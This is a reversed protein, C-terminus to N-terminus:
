GFNLHDTDTATLARAFCAGLRRPALPHDIADTEPLEMAHRMRRTILHQVLPQVEEVRAIMADIAVREELDDNDVLSLGEIRTEVSEDTRTHTATASDADDQLRFGRQLEAFFERTIERRGMRLARMGEYFHQQDNGSAARDARDFLDDDAASLFERLCPELYRRALREVEGVIPPPSGARATPHTLIRAPQDSDKPRQSM